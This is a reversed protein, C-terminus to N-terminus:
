FLPDLVKSSFFSKHLITLQEREPPLFNAFVLKLRWIWADDIIEVYAICWFIM